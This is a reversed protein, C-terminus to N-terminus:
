LQIRRILNQLDNHLGKPDLTPDPRFRKNGLIAGEGQTFRNTESIQDLAKLWEDGSLKAYQQKGLGPVLVRKIIQNAAHAFRRSSDAQASESLACLLSIRWRAFATATRRIRLRAYSAALFM